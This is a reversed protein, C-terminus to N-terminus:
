RAAFPHFGRAVLYLEASGPRSAKTRTAEVRTFEREFLGRIVEFGGGMFVKAVMAGGPKLLIRVAALAAELLVRSNEQDREAIGTLRPALDSAVVDAAGGLAAIAARLAAPDRIDGTVTTVNAAPAACQVLDIGVLRGREGTARALVAMWGGPACGLDVVYDGPRVLKFREILEEIKFAARSPLGQEHAKRFFRDHRQYRGM